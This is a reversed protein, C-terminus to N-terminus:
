TVNYWTLITRVCEWKIRSTKMLPEPRTSFLASPRELWSRRYEIITNENSNPRFDYLLSLWVRPWEAFCLIFQTDKQVCIWLLVYITRWPVAKAAFTHGWICVIKSPFRASVATDFVLFGNWKGWNAGRKKVRVDKENREKGQKICFGLSSLLWFLVRSTNTEVDLIKLILTYSFPYWKLCYRCILLVM